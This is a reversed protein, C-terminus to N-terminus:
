GSATAARWPESPVSAGTPRWGADARTFLQPATGFFEGDTYATLEDASIGAAGFVGGAPEAELTFDSSRDPRRAVRLLSVGESMGAPMERTCTVYLTLGDESIDPNARM